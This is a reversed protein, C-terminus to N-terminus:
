MKYNNAMKNIEDRLHDQSLHSYRKVMQLTKHGLIEAISLLSVGSMALYSAASHRLDHWRFDEIQANKLATRWPRELLISQKPNSKSPFVKTTDIRRIKSRDRLMKLVGETLPISRVEDNKTRNFTVVGNILDVDNWSLDWVEKKRAGTALALLVALYLHRSESDKCALLLREREEESLFRTRGRPEQLKRVKKCPNEEILQWERWAISLISSLAALNRNCTAATRMKIQGGHKKAQIPTDKLKDRLLSIKAPTLDHLKLYGAEERWWLLFPRYGDRTIQKVTPDKLYRNIVDALTHRKAEVAHLYRGERISSETSTSWRKADTLRDFTATQSHVGKLRITVTYTEKGNVGRRKQITAMIGGTITICYLISSNVILLM